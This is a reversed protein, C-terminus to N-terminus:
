RTFTNFREYKKAVCGMRFGSVWIKFEEQNNCVSEKDFEKNLSAGRVFGENWLLYQRKKNM